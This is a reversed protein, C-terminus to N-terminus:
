NFSYRIGVLFYRSIGVRIGQPRHSVIYRENSINKGTFSFTTNFKKLHYKLSADVVHYAPILGILGDNSMEVTNLVDSYQQGVYTFNGQLTLGFRTEFNIISNVLINPSYPLDNGNINVLDSGAFRDNSFTAQLFTANTSISIKEKMEIMRHFEVLIGTEVGLHETRGGNILGAGTGGSSESVPIIQNSFDLYFMTAEIGIGKLFAARIGIEYNWSLEADLNYAIGGQSIADKIRPPAYGRHIGGFVVINKAPIFNFGAGPIFSHVTSFAIISTDRLKKVGNILFEGYLIERNYSFNEYRVGATVSFKPSFDFRNNIFGSAGYGTREELEKTVGSFADPKAGNVRQEFAKEYLFRGGITFENEIKGIAYKKYYKSEIGAVEFQRNRNGTSNRMYLAGRNITEDGWTVGSYNAPKAALVGNTDIENYSFDQRQWNRTTTYGYLTTKIGSTRNFYYNHTASFSLRRIELNDYPAIRTLDLLGSQYMPLTMGVYTSNSNENYFGFKLGVVSKTSLQFKFKATVDTVEFNLLGFDDAQKHLINFQYGVKEKTDGYSAMMLFYGGAGGKLTFNGSSESPPDATIYNVVGGITQPGFLISGSGKLVEVGSMRDMCPTYYLEPEGYPALAVPIGDELVLVGRSRDPDTGRISLNMRLGAGEEDVVHVGPVKRLIENGSVPDINLIETQSITKLSGPIKNMAGNQKEIVTIQPMEYAVSKMTITYVSIPNSTAIMSASSNEYGLCRLYITYHGPAIDSVYFNGSADTVAMWIKSSDTVLVGEIPVGNETQVLGRLTATKNQAYLKSSLICIALLMVIQKIPNSKM